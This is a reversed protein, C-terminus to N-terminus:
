AVRTFRKQWAISARFNGPQLIFHLLIILNAQENDDASVFILGDEIMLPHAQKLRDAMMSIWFSHQYRDRYIFEDNGTNYPPYIYTYGVKERYKDLLLNM